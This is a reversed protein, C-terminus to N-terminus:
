TNDKMAHALQRMARHWIQRVNQTSSGLQAAIQEFPLRQLTRMRLVSRYHEPLENVARRILAEEEHHVAESSPSRTDAILCEKLDGAEAADDLRVEVRIQRKTGTEYSRQFNRMNNQLMRFIWVLFEKRSKGRFQPFDRMAELM